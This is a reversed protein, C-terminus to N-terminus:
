DYGKFFIRDLYLGDAPALWLYMKNNLFSNMFYEEIKDQVLVQMINGMMKRIQHYMFSNGRLQVAVWWRSEKEERKVRKEPM